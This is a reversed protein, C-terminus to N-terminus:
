AHPGNAIRELCQKRHGETIGPSRGSQWLAVLAAKTTLEDLIPLGFDRLGAVIEGAAVSAEQDSSIQWWRDSPMPLLAGLRQNWHSSWVDRPRGAENLSPILVGLNVTLKLETATSSTSSQLTVFQVVDPFARSFVLAKKKFQRSALLEHTASAVIQKYSTASM